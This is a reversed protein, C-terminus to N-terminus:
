GRPRLEFLYIPEGAPPLPPYNEWLDVLRFGRSRIISLFEPYSPHEGSPYTSPYTPSDQPICTFAPSHPVVVLKSVRRAVLWDLWFEIAAPTCESWSHMNIAMDIRPLSDLKNLPVVSARDIKRFRQYIEASLASTPVADVCHVFIGPYEETLRHAARGYGAGIDLVTAANMYDRGVSNNLFGIEHISEFLDRSVTLGNLAAIPAGFAGDETHTSFPADGYHHRLHKFWEVYQFGHCGLFAGDARFNLLDIRPEHHAWFSHGTRMSAYDARMAVLRDMYLSRVTSIVGDVSEPYIKSPSLFAIEERYFRLAREYLAHGVTPDPSSERISLEALPPPPPVTVGTAGEKELVRDTATPSPAGFQIVDNEWAFVYMDSWGSVVPQLAHQRGAVLAPFYVSNDVGAAGDVVHKPWQSAMLAKTFRLAPFLKERFALPTESLSWTAVFATRKRSVISLVTPIDPETVLAVGDHETPATTANIGCLSLFARQVAGVHPLDIIYHTGRFGDKRLMRAFNGHGGGVEVIADVNRLFRDGAAREWRLLHYAHQLAVPSTGTDRSYRCPAGWPEVRSLPMWRTAWGHDARIADYLPHFYPTEAGELYLDTLWSLFHEIPLTRARETMTACHGRWLPHVSVAPSGLSLLTERLQAFIADAQM